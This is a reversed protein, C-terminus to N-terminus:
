KYFVNVVVDNSAPATSDNDAVLTSAGIGIGNAFAIGGVISVNAASSPPIAITMKPTDAGVTPATAKDYLRVYRASAANNFLYWGYVQGAAAKVSVGTTGLNINRYTSLGGSVEPADSEYIPDSSTGSPQVM